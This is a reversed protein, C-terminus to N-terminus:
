VLTHYGEPTIIFHVCALIALIVTVKINENNKFHYYSHCSTLCRYVTYLYCTKLIDLLIYLHLKLQYEGRHDKHAPLGLVARGSKWRSSLGRRGIGEGVVTCCSINSNKARCPEAGVPGFVKDGSPEVGKARGKSAASGGGLSM